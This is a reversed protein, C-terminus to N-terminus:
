SVELRAGLRHLVTAITAAAEDVAEEDLEPRVAHLVEHVTVELLKRPSQSRRVRITPHRGPPHDCTGLADKPLQKATVFEIRWVRSKIKVQM